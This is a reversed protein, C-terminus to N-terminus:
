IPILNKPRSGSKQPTSKSSSQTPIQNRSDSRQDCGSSYIEAGTHCERTFADAIALIRIRRGIALIDCAFDV